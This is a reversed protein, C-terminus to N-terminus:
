KMLWSARVSVGMPLDKGGQSSRLVMDQSEYIAKKPMGETHQLLAQLKLATWKPDHCTLLLFAPKKTLMRPLMSALEPLDKELKWSGKGKPGRGFAPPDLVIGHYKKGRRVERKAFTMVDEVLYRAGDKERLGSAEANRQAWNVFSKSADLHTVNVGQVGLAALSSGGTYAFGNLINLRDEENNENQGVNMVLKARTCMFRIWNWNNIQEPFMGIQGQESTALTFVLNPHIAVKWDIEQEIVARTPLHEMGRWEGDEYRLKAERWASKPMGATWTASPCPRVVLTDGFRELRRQNGSDLYEYQAATSSMMTRVCRDRSPLSKTFGLTGYLLHWVLLLIFFMM